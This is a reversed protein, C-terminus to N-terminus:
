WWGSMGCQALEIRAFGQVPRTASLGETVLCRVPGCAPHCRIRSLSKGMFVKIVGGFFAIQLSCIYTNFMWGHMWGHMWGDLWGDMWGDMCGDMCAHMWEDMCGHMWADMWGEMWGDMWGHMCARVCARVCGDMWGDMWGDM